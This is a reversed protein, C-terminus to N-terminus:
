PRLEYQVAARQAVHGAVFAAIFAQHEPHDRYVLYGEVDDFDGVVAYDFAGQNIGADPGHHYARITTVSSRLADLAASAGAVHGPGVTDEWKFLAVHRLM